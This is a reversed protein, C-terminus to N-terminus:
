SSVPEEGEEEEEEEEASVPEEGAEEQEAPSFEFSGQREAILPESGGGPLLREVGRRRPLDNVWGEWWFRGEEISDPVKAATPNKIVAFHDFIWSGWAPSRLLQAVKIDEFKIAAWKNPGDWFGRDIRLPPTDTSSGFEFPNEDKDTEVEKTLATLTRMAKLWEADLRSFFLTGIAGEWPKFGLAFLNKTRMRERPKATEYLKKIKLVAEKLGKSRYRADHWSWVVGKATQVIVDEWLVALEWLLGNGNSDVVKDNLLQQRKKELIRRWEARDRCRSTGGCLTEEMIAAIHSLLEGKDKPEEGEFWLVGDDPLTYSRKWPELNLEIETPSGGGRYKSTKRCKKMRTQRVKTKRKKPRKSKLRTKGM